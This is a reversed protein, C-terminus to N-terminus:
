FVSCVGVQTNCSCCQQGVSAASAEPGKWGWTSSIRAMFGQGVLVLQHWEWLGRSVDWGM